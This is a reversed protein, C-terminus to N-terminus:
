CNHALEDVIAGAIKLGTRSEIWAWQGNPNAELFWYQEDTGLVMDIASFRLGLSKTLAVCRKAIAAPVGHIAHRLRRGDGRRWDVTSEDFSQSHIEAAFVSEGVVVIRLDFRKPIEQQLIVPSAELPGKKDSRLSELRTTFIVHEMGEHEVLAMRLPKAVCRRSRVFQTALEFDNTILTEPVNLGCERATALQWSKNEAAIIASPSNLWRGELSHLASRLAEQWEGLCYAKASNAISRSIVPMEPRRYYASRVERFPIREGCNDLVWAAEVKGVSYGIKGSAITETNLRFFPLGRKKLELVVFDTTIDSRNSVLLIM